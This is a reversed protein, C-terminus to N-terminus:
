LERYSGDLSVAQGSIDESMAGALFLVLNGVEYFRPPPLKADPADKASRETKILATMHSKAEQYTKASDQSEANTAEIDTLLPTLTPSVFVNTSEPVIM